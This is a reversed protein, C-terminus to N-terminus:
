PHTGFPLQAQTFGLVAAAERLTDSAPMIEFIKADAAWSAAASALVQLCLTGPRAVLSGDIVLDEGRRAILEERLLPAYQPELVPQLVLASGSM